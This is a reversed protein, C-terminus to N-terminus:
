KKSVENIARLLSTSDHTDHGVEWIMIGGGQEIALKTKAKMTPIGNYFCGNVEDKTPATKDQEVLSKYSGNGNKSPKGYFPVGLIAKEKPLGKALWYQLAQKAVDLSSHPPTQADYAMINIFDVVNFVSPLIGDGTKGGSVVAASLIKKQQHLEKGLATMLTDFYRASEGVIGDGADPYEWDMDVGDLNYEKVMQMVTAIFTERSTRSAALQEFATDNGGGDGLDWGGIALCAKVNKAHALAVMQKLSAPNQLFVRGDAKPTAFSYNIHTLKDYQLSDPSGNWSAWYGIIPFTKNSASETPQGGGARCSSCFLIFVCAIPISCKIPHFHNLM